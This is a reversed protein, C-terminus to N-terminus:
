LVCLSAANAFNVSSTSVWFVHVEKEGESSNKCWIKKIIINKWESIGALHPFESRRTQSLYWNEVESKRSKIWSPVRSRKLISWRAHRIQKIWNEDIEISNKQVRCCCCRHSTSTSSINIWEKKKSAWRKGMLPKKWKRM